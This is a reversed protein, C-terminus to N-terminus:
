VVGALHRRFCSDPTHENRPLAHLQTRFLKMKTLFVMDVSDVLVISHAACQKAQFVFKESLRTALEYKTSKM